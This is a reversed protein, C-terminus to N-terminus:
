AIEKDKSEQISESLDELEVEIDNWDTDPLIDRGTERARWRAKLASAALAQSASDMDARISSPYPISGDHESDCWVYASECVSITKDGDVVWRCDGPVLSLADNFDRTFMPLPMDEDWIWFTGQQVFGPWRGVIGLAFEVEYPSTNQDNSSRLWASLITLAEKETMQM